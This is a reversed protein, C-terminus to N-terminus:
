VPKPTVGRACINGPDEVTGLWRDLVRGRWVLRVLQSWVVSLGFIALYQWLPLPSMDFFTRGLPLALVAVMFGLLAVVVAPVRWDGRVVAGGDWWRSHPPVALLMLLIATFCAFLTLASQAHPYTYPMVGDTDAGPHAALFAHKAPLAYALYVGTAMAVMLVTPPVFFRALLRFLGLKPTPGPIAFVAFAAAPVGAGVFSLLSAQRPSFPFGAVAMVIAIISAKFCLRVIFIRLIDNMGNIIRQGEKFAFPLPAFTDNLLILDSVGRAAQSGSQMGVAVNAQKLAIVDNVGDGVM